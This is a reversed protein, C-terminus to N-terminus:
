GESDRLSRAQVYFMYFVVNLNALAIDREIFVWHSLGSMQTCEWLDNSYALNSGCLLTNNGPTINAKSNTKHCFVYKVVDCIM